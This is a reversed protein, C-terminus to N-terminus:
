PKATEAFAIILTMEEDTAVDALGPTAGMDVVAIEFRKNSASYSSPVYQVLKAKAATPTSCQASGWAGLFTGAPVESFNVYYRGTAANYSVSSVGRLGVITGMDTAAGGGTVRGILLLPSYTTCQVMHRDCHIM